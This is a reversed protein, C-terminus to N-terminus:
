LNMGWLSIIEKALEFEQLFKENVELCGASLLLGTGARKKRPVLEAFQGERGEHPLAPLLIRM